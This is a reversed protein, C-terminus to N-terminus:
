SKVVEYMRVRKNLEEVQELLWAIDDPAHAILDQWFENNVTVPAHPDGFRQHMVVWPQGPMAADMRRRIEQLRDSM